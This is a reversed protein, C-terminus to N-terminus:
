LYNYYLIGDRKVEMGNLEANIFMLRYFIPGDAVVHM